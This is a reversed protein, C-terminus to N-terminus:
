VPLYETCTVLRSRQAEPVHRLFDYLQKPNSWYPSLLLDVDIKRSYEFQVAHLTLQDLKFKEGLSQRLFVKMEKLWAKYGQEIVTDKDIDAHM